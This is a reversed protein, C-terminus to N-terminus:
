ARLARRDRQCTRGLATRGGGCRGGQRGDVDYQYQGRALDALSDGVVCLAGGEDDIFVHHIGLRSAVLEVTEVELIAIKDTPRLM